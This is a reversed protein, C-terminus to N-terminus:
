KKQLLSLSRSNKNNLLENWSQVGLNKLALGAGIHESYNIVGFERTKQYYEIAKAKNGQSEYDQAIYFYAETLALTKDDGSMSDLSKLLDEVSMLGHLMALAARPWQGKINASAFKMQKEDPKLNMRKQTFVRWLEPYLSSDSSEKELSIAKEFDKVAAELQGAFFRARGRAHYPPHDDGSLTIAKSYDAIANTFKGSSLWADGRCTYASAFNPATKVALNADNLAEDLQGLWEICQSQHM